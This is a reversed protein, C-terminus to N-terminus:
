GQAVTFSWSTSQGGAQVTADVRGAPLPGSLSVVVTNSQRDGQPPATPVDAAVAQGNATVTASAASVPAPFTVYLKTPRYSVTQGPGPFRVLPPVAMAADRGRLVDLVAVWGLDFPQGCASGLDLDSYESYGTARLRPNLMWLAHGTSNLWGEVVRRPTLRACNAGYLNGSTGAANGEPTAFPRGAVEEHTFQGNHVLYRGHLEGGVALAPDVWVVPLGADARYRNLWGLWDEDGPLGTPELPTPVAPGVVYGMVDVVLHSRGAGTFLSV